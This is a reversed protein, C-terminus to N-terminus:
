TAPNNAPTRARLYSYMMACAGGPVSAVWLALIAADRRFGKSTLTLVFYAIPAGIVVGAIAGLAFRAYRRQLLDDPVIRRLACYVAASCIAPLTGVVYFLLLLPLLLPVASLPDGIWTLDLDSPSLLAFGVFLTPVALAPGTLVSRVIFSPTSRRLM